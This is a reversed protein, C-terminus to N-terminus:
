SSGSNEGDEGRGKSKLWDEFTLGDPNDDSNLIQGDPMIAGKLSQCAELQEPTTGEAGTLDAGTLDAGTLDAGGLLAKRLLAGTLSAERLNTITLKSLAPRGDRIVLRRPVVALRGDRTVPRRPARLDEGHFNINVVLNHRSWREPDRADYPLLNTATLNTDKLNARRLDSGRLDALNLDSGQLDAGKLDSLRLDVSRLNARLLTLERLKGGALAANKLDLVPDDREILGLEYVLTIPVRKFSPGVGALIAITRAQALQRVYVKPEINKRYPPKSGLNEKLLLESMQDLYKQLADQQARHEETERQGRQERQTNWSSVVLGVLGVIGTILGGGLLAVIIPGFDNM